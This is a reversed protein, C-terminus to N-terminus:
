RKFKEILKKYDEFEAKIRLPQKIILDEIEKYFLDSIKKVLDISSDIGNLNTILIPLYYKEKATIPVKDLDECAHLYLFYNVKDLTPEDIGSVKIIEAETFIVPFCGHIGFMICPSDSYHISKKHFYECALALDNSINYIPQNGKDDYGDEVLRGGKQPKLKKELCCITKSFPVHGFKQHFKSLYEHGGMFVGFSYCNNLFNPFSVPFNGAVEDFEYFCIKHENLKKVEGVLRLQLNPFLEKATDEFTKFKVDGLADIDKSVEGYQNQVFYRSQSTEIGLDSLKKRIKIEFPFGSEKLAEIIMEEDKSMLTM